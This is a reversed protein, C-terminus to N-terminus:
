LYEIRAGLGVGEYMLFVPFVIDLSADFVIGASDNVPPKVLEVLQSPSTIRTPYVALTSSINLMAKAQCMAFELGDFNFESSWENVGVIGDIDFQNIEIFPDPLRDLFSTVSSDFLPNLDLGFTFDLDVAVDIVLSDVLDNALEEATNVFSFGGKDPMADDSGFNDRMVDQLLDKIRHSGLPPILTQLYSICKMCFFIERNLRMRVTM